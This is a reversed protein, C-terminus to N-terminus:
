RHLTCYLHTFPLFGRNLATEVFLFFKGNELKVGCHGISVQLRQCRCRYCALTSLNGSVCSTRRMLSFSGCQHSPCFRRGISDVFVEFSRTHDPPGMSTAKLWMLTDVLDYWMSRHGMKRGSMHDPPHRHHLLCWFSGGWQWCSWNTNTSRKWKGLFTLM